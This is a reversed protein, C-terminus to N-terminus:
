LQIAAKRTVALLPYNQKPMLYMYQRVLYQLSEAKLESVTKQSDGELAFHSM